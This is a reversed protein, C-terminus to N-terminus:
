GCKKPGGKCSGDDSGGNGGGKGGGGSADTVTVEVYTTEDSGVSNVARVKYRFLGSGSNDTYSNTQSSLSALLTSSQWRRRKAHWSERIIEYSDVNSGDTWQLSASGDQNDSIVLSDPAAPPEPPPPPPPADGLPITGSIFYQGQSGYDSYPSIANGVGTIALYYGGAVLELQLQAKTEDSPDAQAVLNGDVDYLSLEIDLNTGRGNSSRYWAAWSPTATIDVAGGSTNFTFVDIDSRSDIIGKNQPLSNFADTQPTSVLVQGDDEIQLLSAGSFSDSHDDARPATKNNIIAIDDQTNNANPYEGKSWQSVNDNYGTGMIPGWSVAGSGHGSYYSVTSTGDHSLGLNHGAEHSAAEAIYPPFNSLNNSYVLAPSYYGYDSRGFVNVYAVGGANSAPMAVGNADVNPTILIRGTRPGFNSPEETTVDIDFAAFDESIRHWIEAIQDLENASFGSLGDSNFAQAYLPDATGSNWATGTIVHGDVDIFLVNSAGPKSHLLFVDSAAIGSSTTTTTATDSAEPADDVYYIAGTLDARMHPVDAAPFSFGNLWRLGRARAQEPLQELQHRLVSNPLQEIDYQADQANNALAGQGFLTSFIAGGLALSIRTLSM